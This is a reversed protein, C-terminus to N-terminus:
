HKLMYQLAAMKFDGYFFYRTYDNWNKWTDAYNYREQASTFIAFFTVFFLIIKAM